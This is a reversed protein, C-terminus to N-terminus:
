SFIKLVLFALLFIVSAVLFMPIFTLTEALYPGLFSGGAAGLAVLVDILGAKGEPIIEMSLSIMLISYLAFAFGLMVLIAGAILTPAFAAQVAVILLVILLGRLLVMRRMQKRANMYTARKSMFFFGTLAGSSSLMYVLFIMSEPLALDQSFFVPLPTFFTSSALSFLVMSVGFVLLSDRKLKDRMPRGDMLDSASNLGRFTFDLKKEIGVLRREFILMPDAVLFLSLLFAALNLGSCLYLTHIAGFSLTSAFLGTLLGLLFGIETVGEYLAYSKEWENRSYNEAILVNKPAEHAVHLVSMLVYLITFTFVNTALSFLYLFVTISLFSLLIYLKYRRTKDCIYGWFYSAPITFLLALATMVGIDVLSGGIAPSIVYLPIFVSLLGFAMEHFFFGLRWMVNLAVKM